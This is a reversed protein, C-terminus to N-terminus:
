LCVALSEFVQGSQVAYYDTIVGTTADEVKICMYNTCECESTDGPLYLVLGQSSFGSTYAVSSPSDVVILNGDSGFQASDGTTSLSEWLVLPIETNYLVLNGDNQLIMLFKGDASVINQGIGLIFPDRGFGEYSPQSSSSPFFSPTLSPQLSFSPSSTPVSSPQRSFSPQGSPESSPRRSVSPNLSPTSSPQGSPESSPRSSVSPNLSPTSSPQGSPKTSPKETKSRRRSNAKSSKSGILVEDGTTNFDLPLTQHYSPQSSTTPSSIQTSIPKIFTEKEIEIEEDEGQNIIEENDNLGDGDTDPNFPNTGLQMELGDSIGDGDSDITLDHRDISKRVFIDTSFLMVILGVCLIGLSVCLTVVNRRTRRQREGKKQPEQEQERDQGYPITKDILFGERNLSGQQANRDSASQSPQITIINGRVNKNPQGVNISGSRNESSEPQQSNQYSRSLSSQNVTFTGLGEGGTKSASRQVERSIDQQEEGDEYNPTPMSLRSPERHLSSSSPSQLSTTTSSCLQVPTHAGENVTSPLQSPRLTTPTPEEDESASRVCDVPCCLIEIELPNQADDDDEHEHHNPQQNM